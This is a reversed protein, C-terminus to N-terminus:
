QLRIKQQRITKPKEAETTRPRQAGPAVNFVCNFSYVDSTITFATEKASNTSAQDEARLSLPM